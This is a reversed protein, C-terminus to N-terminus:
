TKKQWRWKWHLFRSGYSNEVSSLLFDQQFTKLESTLWGTSQNLSIKILFVNVEM